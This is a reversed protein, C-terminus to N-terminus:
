KSASEGDLPPNPKNGYYGRDSVAEQRRGDANTEFGPRGLLDGPRSVQKAMLTEITCGLEYPPVGEAYDPTSTPSNYGPIMGCKRPAKAIIAPFSITTLSTDGTEALATTQLSIDRVGNRKLEDAIRKAEQAAKSATNTESKPDYGIVLSLPGNGYRYYHVGIAHIMGDDLAATEFTDTFQDNHVEVRNQNVWTPSNMSCAGLLGVTLLLGLIRFQKM